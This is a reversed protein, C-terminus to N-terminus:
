ILALFRFAKFLGDEDVSATVLDAAEKTAPTANGMAVAFGAKELMPIDNEGDGAALCDEPRLGLYDAMIGLGIDKGGSRPMIDIFGEHWRTAAAHPLLRMVEYQEKYAGFFMLQLWCGDALEAPSKCPFLPFDLAECLAKTSPSIHNFASEESGIFCFDYPPRGSEKQKELFACLRRIDEPDLSQRRILEKEANLCFQGSSCVYGDFPLEALRGLATISRGTALLVKRGGAKLRKIADLASGPVRHTRFSVLTGDADIFVAKIKAPDFARAAPNLYPTKFAEPMKRQEKKKKM